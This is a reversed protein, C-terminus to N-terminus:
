CSFALALLLFGFFAPSLLIFCSLALALLLLCSFAVLLLWFCGFALFPAFSASSFQFQLFCAALVIGECSHGGRFLDEVGFRGLVGLDSGFVRGWVEWIPGLVRGFGGM